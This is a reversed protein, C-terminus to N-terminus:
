RGDRGGGTVLDDEVRLPDDDRADGDGDGNPGLVFDEMTGGEGGTADSYDVAGAAFEAMGVGPVERPDDPRRPPGGTALAEVQRPQDGEMPALTANIVAGQRANEEAASREGASGQIRRNDGAAAAAELV